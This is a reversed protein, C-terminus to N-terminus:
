VADLWVRMEGRNGWEVADVKGRKIERLMHTYSVGRRAAAATTGETMTAIIEKAHEVAQELVQRDRAQPM